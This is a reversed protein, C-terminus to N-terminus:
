IYFLNKRINVYSEILIAIICNAKLVLLTLTSINKKFFILIDFEILVIKKKIKKIKKINKRELDCSKRKNNKTKNKTAKKIKAKKKTAEKDFKDKFFEKNEESNNSEQKL